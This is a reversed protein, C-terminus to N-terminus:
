YNHLTLEVQLCDLDRDYCLCALKKPLRSKGQLSSNVASNAGSFDTPSKGTIETSGLNREDKASSNFATYQM